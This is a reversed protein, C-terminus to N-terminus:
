GGMFAAGLASASAVGFLRGSRGRGGNNNNNNNNNNGGRGNKREWEV